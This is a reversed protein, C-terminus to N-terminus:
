VLIERTPFRNRATVINQLHSKYFIDARFRPEPNNVDIDKDPDMLAAELIDGDPDVPNTPIDTYPDLVGTFVLHFRGNSPTIIADVPIRHIKFDSADLNTEHIIEFRAQELPTRGLIRSDLPPGVVKGSPVGWGRPKQFHPEERNLVVVVKRFDDTWLVTHVLIIRKGDSPTVAFERWDITITEKRENM